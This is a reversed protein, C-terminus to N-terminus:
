GLEWEIQDFVDEIQYLSKDAEALNWDAIHTEATKYLALTKSRYGAHSSEHFWLRGLM